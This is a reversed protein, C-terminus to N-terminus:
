KPKGASLASATPYPARFCSVVHRLLLASRREEQPPRHSATFPRSTQYMRPESHRTLAAAITGASAAVEFDDHINRYHPIVEEWIRILPLTYDITLQAVRQGLPLDDTSAPDIGEWRFPSGAEARTRREEISPPDSPIPQLFDWKSAVEIRERMETMRFREVLEGRQNRLEQRYVVFWMSGSRGTKEYLDVISSIATISDGPRIPAHFDIDKGADFGGTTM